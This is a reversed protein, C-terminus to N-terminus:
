ERRLGEPRVFVVSPVGNLIGITHQQTMLQRVLEVEDCGLDAAVASAPLLWRGDLLEQVREVIDNAPAIQTSELESLLEAARTNKLRGALWAKLDEPSVDKGDVCLDGAAADALLKRAAAIAAYAEAPPRLWTNGSKQLADLREQTAKATKKIVLRSDRILVLREFRGSAALSQLKKLRAALSTLNEAHCIAVGIKGRATNVAIDLEGKAREAKGPTSANILKLLGDAFVGEDLPQAAEKDIHEEWIEDLGEFSEAARQEGSGPNEVREHPSNSPLVNEAEIAEGRRWREFREGCFDLLQRVPIGGATIMAKIQERRMPWLSDAEGLVKRAEMIEPVKALRAAVLEMASGSELRTLAGQDQALRHMHAPPVAREMDLKTYTQSCSIAAINRCEVFLKVLGTAFAQLGLQDQPEVQLGELQDFALVFVSSRGMLRSLTVLVYLADADADITGGVGLREIVAEPVSKGLLWRYADNRCHQALFHRLVLTVEPDLQLRDCLRQMPGELWAFLAEGPPNRKRVDAWFLSPTLKAKSGSGKRSPINMHRRVNNWITSATSQTGTDSNLLERVVLTELQTSASGPRVGVLDQVTQRLLDRFFREPGSVPPVYVFYDRDDRQIHRRLRQLLHTKGSGPEGCLLLGRCQGTERVNEITETCCEFATRNITEVDVTDPDWASDVRNSVFPNLVPKARAVIEANM